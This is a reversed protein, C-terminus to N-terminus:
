TSETHAHYLVCSLVRILPVTHIIYYWLYLLLISEHTKYVVRDYTRRVLVYDVTCTSVPSVIVSTSRHYMVDNLRASCASRGRSKVDDRDGVVIEKSVIKAPMDQRILDPWPRQHM